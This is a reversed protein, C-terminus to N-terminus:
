DRRQFTKLLPTSLEWPPTFAGQSNKPSESSLPFAHSAILHIVPMKMLLLLVSMRVLMLRLMNMRMFVFSTLSVFYLAVRVLMFLDQMCMWVLMIIRVM